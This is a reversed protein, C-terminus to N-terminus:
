EKYEKSKGKMLKNKEEKERKLFFSIKLQYKTYYFLFPTFNIKLVAYLEPAAPLLLPHNKFVYNELLM